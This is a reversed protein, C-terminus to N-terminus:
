NCYTDQSSLALLTIRQQLFSEKMWADMWALGDVLDLHTNAVRLM